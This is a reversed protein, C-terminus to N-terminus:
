DDIVVIDRPIDAPLSGGYRRELFWARLAHLDEDSPLFALLLQPSLHVPPGSDRLLVIFSATGDGTDKFRFGIDRIDDLKHEMRRTRLGLKLRYGRLMEGDIEFVVRTLYVYVCGVLLLSSGALLSNPLEDGRVYRTLSFIVGALAGITFPLTWRGYEPRLVLRAGGPQTREVPSADTM